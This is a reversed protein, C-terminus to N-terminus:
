RVVRLTAGEPLVAEVLRMPFLRRTKHRNDFQRVRSCPCSKRLRTRACMWTDLLWSVALSIGPEFAVVPDRGDSVWYAHM